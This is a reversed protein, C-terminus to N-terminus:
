GVKPLVEREFFRFFGEQDPGIQHVYVNDFGADVYQRIADLHREPDPGCPVNEAVDDPSLMQAAQEFHRPLPLEQGLEGEMSTNPWWEFATKKAEEESAAWCVHVQGYTPKGSGGADEFTRITEEEPSTAILGDGLRGAM